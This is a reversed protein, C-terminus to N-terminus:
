LVVSYMGFCGKLYSYCWWKCALVGNLTVIDGGYVHWFVVKPLVSMYM